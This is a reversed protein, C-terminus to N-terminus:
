EKGIILKQKLTEQSNTATIIFMSGFNRYIEDINLKLEGFHESPSVSAPIDKGNIDQVTIRYSSLDNGSYNLNVNLGSSPNPYINFISKNKNSVSVPPFYTFNGNFDTQKLRYYSTGSFPNHDIYSYTHEVTSNGAGDV